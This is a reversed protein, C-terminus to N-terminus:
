RRKKGQSTLELDKWFRRSGEQAELKAEWPICHLCEATGCTPAMCRFCLGRVRKKGHAKASPQGIRALQEPPSWVGGSGSPKVIIIRNCHCCVFSDFERTVNPEAISVYGKHYLRSM